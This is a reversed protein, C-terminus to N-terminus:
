ALVRALVSIILSKGEGAVSVTNTIGQQSPIQQKYPTKIVYGVFILTACLVGTSILGIRKKEM